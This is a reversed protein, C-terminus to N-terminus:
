NGTRVFFRGPQQQIRRKLELLMLTASVEHVPLGSRACIEDIHMEEDAIVALIRSERDEAAPAPPSRKTTPRM